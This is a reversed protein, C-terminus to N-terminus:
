STSFAPYWNPQLFGLIRFAVYRKFFPRDTLRHQSAIPARALSPFYYAHARLWLVEQYIIM